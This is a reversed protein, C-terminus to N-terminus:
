FQMGTTDTVMFYSLGDDQGYGVQTLTLLGNAQHWAAEEGTTATTITADVRSHYTVMTSRSPQGYRSIFSNRVEPYRSRDFSGVINTLHMPAHVFSVGNPVNALFSYSTAAYDPQLLQGVVIRCNWGGGVVYPNPTCGQPVQGAKVNHNVVYQAWTEGVTDQKVGFRPTTGQAYTLTATVILALITTAKRNTVPRRHEM